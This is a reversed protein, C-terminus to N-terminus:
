LIIGCLVGLDSECSYIFQSMKMYGAIAWAYRSRTTWDECNRCDEGWWITFPPQSLKFEEWSTAVVTNESVTRFEEISEYMSLPRNSYHLMVRSTHNLQSQDIYERFEPPINEECLEDMEGMDHLPLDASTSNLPYIYLIALAGGPKM